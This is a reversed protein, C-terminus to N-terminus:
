HDTDTIRATRTCEFLWSVQFHPQSTLPDERVGTTSGLPELSTTLIAKARPPANMTCYQIPANLDCEKQRGRDISCSEM